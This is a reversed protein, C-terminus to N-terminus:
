EPVIVIAPSTDILYNVKKELASGDKLRLSLLASRRVSQGHFGHGDDLKYDVLRVAPGCRPDNFYVAPTRGVLAAAPEGKQWADLATRLAAAAVDPDAQPPLSGGCGVAALMLAGGCARRLAPVIPFM